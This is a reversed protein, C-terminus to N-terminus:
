NTKSSHLHWHCMQLHTLAALLGVYHNSVLNLVLRGPNERVLGLLLELVHPDCICESTDSTLEFSAFARSILIISHNEVQSIVLAKSYSAKPLLRELIHGLLM